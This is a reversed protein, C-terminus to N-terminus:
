SLASRVRLIFNFYFQRLLISYFNQWFNVCVQLLILMINQQQLWDRRRSAFIILAHGRRENERASYKASTSCHKALKHLNKKSLKQLM